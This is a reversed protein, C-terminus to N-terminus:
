TGAYSHLGTVVLNIVFYNILITSYGVLAVTAARRGKWGATARAHLYAAYCVWTIFAWTEKPDWGWYRGWANEAWIAGAIVAFTWLPFVFAHIRYALRDVADASPLRSPAGPRLREARERVLYLISVAAGVTFIGMSVAAAIVHIVLWYSQLAPQLQQADTYLVTVALGLTLLVPTVVFVGLWRIDYKRTLALYVGMTALASTTSFEYMNGWPVREVALGRCTMGVLHLLFALTALSLGVRGFTEARDRAPPQTEAGAAPAGAGVLAREEVTAGTFRRSGFAWEAALALMALAYVAMAAYVLRDSTEALSEHVVTM